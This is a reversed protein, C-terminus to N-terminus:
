VAPLSARSLAVFPLKVRLLTLNVPVCLPQAPLPFPFLYKEKIEELAAAGMVTGRVSVLTVTSIVPWPFPKLPVVPPEAKRCLQFLLPGTEIVFLMNSSDPNALEKLKSVKPVVAAPM